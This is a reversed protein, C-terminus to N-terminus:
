LPGFDCTVRNRGAAKSRYLARDARAILEAGSEEGPRLAAVGFSATIARLPWSHSEIATRLREAFARAGEMETMPLILVFEEGGYRAVLDTSRVCDRLIGAVAKLVLDGAPHGYADNFLKFCDVDLVILPLPIAYRLARNVEETMREQFTRHNILGTLGDTTALTALEANAKELEQKQFELAATYEKILGEAKKQETIDHAVGYMLGRENDSATNWRLWRYSGDQCRYRNEFNPTPIGQRIKQRSALTAARDEPHVFEVLPIALLEKKSFGLTKQWAPSLRKFYGDCGAICLMDLSLTFFRDGEEEADIAALSEKETVLRERELVRCEREALGRYSKLHSSEQRLLLCLIAEQESTLPKLVTDIVGLTNLLSPEHLAVLRKTEDDPVPADM